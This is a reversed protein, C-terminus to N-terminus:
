GMILVQVIRASILLGPLLFLLTIPNPFRLIEKWKRWISDILFIAGFFCLLLSSAGHMMLPANLAFGQGGQFRDSPLTSIEKGYFYAVTFFGISAASFGFAVLREFSGESRKKM